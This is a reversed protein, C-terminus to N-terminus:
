IQYGCYCWSQGIWETPYHEGLIKIILCVMIYLPRSGNDHQSCFCKPIYREEGNSYLSCVNKKFIGESQFSYRLSMELKVPCLSLVVHLKVPTQVRPSM